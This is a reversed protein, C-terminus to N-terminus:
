TNLDINLSHQFQQLLADHYDRVKGAQLEPPLLGQEALLQQEARFALIQDVREQAQTKNLPPSSSM